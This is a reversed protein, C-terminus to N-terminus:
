VIEYLVPKSPSADSELSSIQLNLLYEGDDINDPVYILETITATSRPTEPYQWFIHHSQLLGGDEERDVSPFDVLLHEVGFSLIEKMADPSIYIPNTGSYKKSKKFPENPLTRIILARCEKLFPRNKFSEILSEKTIISDAGSVEPYITILRAFFHFEKLSDYITIRERSIHGICETHTGNGHPSLTITECNCAGGESVSGVFSGMRFPEFTPEALYFANVGAASNRVPLSIDIPKLLDIERQINKFLVTAKM